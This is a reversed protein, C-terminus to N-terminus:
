ASSSNSCAAPPKSTATSFSASIHILSLVMTEGAPVDFNIGHLIEREGYKVRLNRVSIAAGEKPATPSVKPTFKDAM